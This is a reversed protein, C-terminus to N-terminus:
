KQETASGRAIAARIENEGVVIGYQQVANDIVARQVVDELARLHIGYRVAQEPEPRQGTQREIQQLQRNFLDRVETVSVSTGGVWGYVPVHTGGVHAVEATGAGTRLMDGIGWLAFSVVLTGMLLAMIVYGAYKRFKSM